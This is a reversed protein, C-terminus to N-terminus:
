KSKPEETIITEISRIHKLLRGFQIEDLIVEEKKLFKFTPKLLNKLEKESIIEGDPKEEQEVSENESNSDLVEKEETIAEEVKDKTSPSKKEQEIKYEAVLIDNGTIKEGEAKSELAKKLLKKQEEEPKKSIESAVRINVKNELLAAKLEDTGNKEVAEFKSVQGTSMGMSEAVFERKKKGKLHMQIEEGDENLGVPLYEIGKEKLEKYIESWMKVELNLDADTKNRVQNTSLIALNEKLDDSLPLKIDDLNKVICPVSDAVWKGIERLYLIAELRRHGTLLIYNGDESKRVVLPQELGNMDILQALEKIDEMSFKNKKNPIVLSIKIYEVEMRKTQLKVSEKNLLGTGVNGKKPQELNHVPKEGKPIQFKKM